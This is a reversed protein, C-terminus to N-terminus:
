SQASLYLFFNKGTPAILKEANSGWHGNLRAPFVIRYSSPSLLFLRPPFKVRVSKRQAYLPRTLLPFSSRCFVALRRHRPLPYLFFLRCCFQTPRPRYMRNALCLESMYDCNTDVTLILRPLSESLIIDIIVSLAAESEHLMIWVSICHLLLLM